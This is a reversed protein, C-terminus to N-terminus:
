YKGKSLDMAPRLFPQANTGPHKVTKGFFKKGNSLVKANKVTITHAVTGFEVHPAYDVPTGVLVVGVRNPKSITDAGGKSGETLSQTSISAKLRGGGPSVPCLAAAQNEIILGTEFASKNIVKKGRLKIIDGDWKLKSEVKM